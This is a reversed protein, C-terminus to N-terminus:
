KKAGTEYGCFNKVDEFTRFLPQQTASNSIFGSAPRTTTTHTGHSGQTVTAHSDRSARTAYAMATDLPEAVLVYFIFPYGERREHKFVYGEKELDHILRGVQTVLRGHCPGDGKLFHLRYVGAPGARRLLPLVFDREDNAKRSGARPGATAATSPQFQM